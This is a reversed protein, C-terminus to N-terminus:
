EHPLTGILNVLRLDTEKGNDGIHGHSFWRLIRRAKNKLRLVEIQDKTSYFNQRRDFDEIVARIRKQTAGPRAAEREILQDVKDAM